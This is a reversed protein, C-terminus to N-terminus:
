KHGANRPLAIEDIHQPACGPFAKVDTDAFVGNMTKFLVILGSAPPTSAVRWPFQNIALAVAIIGHRPPALHEELSLLPAVPEVRNGAKIWRTEREM